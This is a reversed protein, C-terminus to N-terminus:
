QVTENPEWESCAPSSNMTQRYHCEVRWVMVEQFRMTNPEMIKQQRPVVLNEPPLLCLGVTKPNDNDAQHKMCDGCTKGKFTPNM